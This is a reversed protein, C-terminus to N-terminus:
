GEEVLRAYFRVNAAFLDAKQAHRVAWGRETIVKGHLAGQVANQSVLVLRDGLLERLTRIRDARSSGNVIVRIGEALGQSLHSLGPLAMVEWDEDSRFTQLNIAVAAPRTDECWRLWRDLDERRFWYLNPVAPVGAAALEAAALLSRRFNLLHEVRPQNGYMSYNPALVLDWGQDAIAEVLGDVRRRTWWAEVLPDEGYGVLVALRGEGLGLAGRAGLEVFSPSLTHTKPSLVQSLRVGYAPWRAVADLEALDSGEMLPIFRPLSEPLRSSMEVDDFTLTGGVDRMWGAIDTRSGCRIPCTRCPTTGVVVGETRSCGCYACDSNCGSCLPEAAAPNGTHFPCTRCDCGRAPLVPM